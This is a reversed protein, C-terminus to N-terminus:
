GRDAWDGSWYNGAIDPLDAFGCIPHYGSLDVNTWWHLCAINYDFSMWNFRNEQWEFLPM